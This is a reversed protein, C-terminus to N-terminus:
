RAAVKPAGVLHASLCKAGGADFNVAVLARRALADTFVRVIEAADTACALRKGTGAFGEVSAVRKGEKAEIQVALSSKPDGAKGVCQFEGTKLQFCPVAAAAPLAALSSLALVVAANRM